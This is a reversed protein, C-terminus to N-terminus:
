VLIRGDVKGGFRGILPMLLLQIASGKLFILGIDLASYRMVTGCYLSFLFSGAFLATGVIFNIGTAATYSRNAFVRLDVVPQPTELEHVIFTVLSIVAVAALAAIHGSQ